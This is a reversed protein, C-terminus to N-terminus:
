KGGKKLFAEVLSLNAGKNQINSNTVKTKKSYWLINKIQVELNLKKIGFHKIFVVL